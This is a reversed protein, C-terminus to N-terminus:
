SLLFYKLFSCNESCFSYQFFSLTFSRRFSTWTTQLMWTVTSSSTAHIGAPCESTTPPALSLCFILSLCWKLYLNFIEWFSFYVYTGRVTTEGSTARSGSTAVKDASTTMTAEAEEMNTPLTHPDVQQSSFVWIWSAPGPSCVFKGQLLFRWFRGGYGMLPPRPQAFGMLGQPGQPPFPM